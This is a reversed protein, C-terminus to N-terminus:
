KCRKEVLEVLNDYTKIQIGEKLSDSRLQNFRPGVEARRGVIITGGPPLELEELGIGGHTISRTAYDKNQQLWRFWDRSQQQAGRIREHLMGSTTVLPSGAPELEICQWEIGASSMEPLLFDPVYESGLRPKSIAFHCHPYQMTLFYPNVELFEHIEHESQASDL